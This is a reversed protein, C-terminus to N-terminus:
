LPEFEIELSPNSDGKAVGLVQKTLYLGSGQCAGGAWLIKM